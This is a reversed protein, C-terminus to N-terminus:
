NNRPVGIPCLLDGVRYYLAPFIGLSDPEHYLRIEEYYLM